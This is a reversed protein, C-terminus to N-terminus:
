IGSLGRAPGVNLVSFAVRWADPPGYYWSIAIVSLAPVLGYIAETARRSTRAVLPRLDASRTTPRHSMRHVRRTRNAPSPRGDKADQERPSEGAAPPNPPQGDRHQDQHARGRERAAVERALQDSTKGDLLSDIRRFTSM